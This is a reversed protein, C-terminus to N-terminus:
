IITKKDEHLSVYYYRNNKLAFKIYMRKECKRSLWSFAFLENGEITKEYSRMPPYTGAYDDPGIEALFTQILEWIDKTDLINLAELEGVAKAPHAFLGPRESLCTKAEAIKKCLERSTPRKM